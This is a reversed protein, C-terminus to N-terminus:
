GLAGSRPAGDSTAGNGMVWHRSDCPQTYATRSMQSPRAAALIMTFSVPDGSGIFDGSCDLDCVVASVSPSEVECTVQADDFSGTGITPYAGFSCTSSSVPCFVYSTAVKGVPLFSM